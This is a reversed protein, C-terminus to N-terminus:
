KYFAEILGPLESCAKASDPLVVAMSQLLTTVTVEKDMSTYKTAMVPFAGLDDRQINTIINGSNWAMLTFLASSLIRSDASSMASLIDTGYKVAVSTNVSAVALIGAAIDLCAFCIGAVVVVVATAFVVAAISIVAAAAIIAAVVSVCGVVAVVVALTASAVVIRAANTCNRKIDPVRKPTSQSILCYTVRAGRALATTPKTRDM